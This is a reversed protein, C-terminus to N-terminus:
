VFNNRHLKEICRTVTKTSLNTKKSINEIKQRPDKMLQELIELDTKTLNSDFGPNEAEFISLVRVDRMLNNALKIKEQLNDKAVIGCVTVGGVCPVVFFPKGRLLKTYCVNYSTIRNNAFGSILMNTYYKSM